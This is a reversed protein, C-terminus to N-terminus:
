PPLRRGRRRGSARGPGGGPGRRRPPCAAIPGPRPIAPCRPIRRRLEERRRPQGDLRPGPLVPGIGDEVEQRGDAAAQPALQEAALVPRRLGDREIGVDGRPPGGAGLGVQLLQGPDEDVQVPGAHAGVLDLDEVGVMDETVGDGLEGGHGTPVAAGQVGRRSRPRRRRQAQAGLAPLTVRAYPTGTAPPPGSVVSPSCARTARPRGLQHTIRATDNARMASRTAVAPPVGCRAAWPLLTAAAADCSMGGTPVVGAGSSRGPGDRWVVVAVVVDVGVDVAGAGAADPGDSTEEGTTVARAPVGVVVTGAVVVM